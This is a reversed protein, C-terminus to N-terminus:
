NGLLIARVPSADLGRLKLPLAILTYTGSRINALRLGELIIINKSMLAKHTPHGTQSREIGLADIGVGKIGIEALYNAASEGVFVFNPNFGEDQSNRTKFLVFDNKRIALNVLNEKTITELVYSLDFVRAESIYHDLKAESSTDGGDIMHLNFDVHTGSHVNMNVDTEYHSSDTFNAVNKFTPKKSPLDKYVPMDPHIEMSIDYIKM